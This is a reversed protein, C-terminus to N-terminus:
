QQLFTLQSQFHSHARDYFEGLIFLMYRLGMVGIGWLGMVGISWLGM